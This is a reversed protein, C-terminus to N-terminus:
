ASKLANKRDNTQHTVIWIYYKKFLFIFYIGYVSAYLHMRWHWEDALIKASMFYMFPMPAYM